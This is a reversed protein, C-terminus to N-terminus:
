GQRLEWIPWGFLSSLERTLCFGAKKAIKRFLIRSCIFLHFDKWLLGVSYSLPESKDDIIPTHILLAGKEALISLCKTLFAVPQYLHEFVDVLIILDYPGPSAEDLGGPIIDLGTRDKIGKCIEPSLETGSVEYGKGRLQHLLCGSGCGIELVRKGNLKMTGIAEMLIPIRDSMDSQFREEITPCSANKQVDYWYHTGYLDSLHESQPRLTNIWSSCNQCIGWGWIPGSDLQGGCLCREVVEYGINKDGFFHNIIKLRKM